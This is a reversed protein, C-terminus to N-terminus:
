DFKTAFPVKELEWEGSKPDRRSNVFCKWNAEDLKPFDGRYYYGPWRTEEGSCCTGCAPRPRTSGTGCRGAGAPPRAPRPRGPERLGGPLVAHARPGAGPDPRQDHLLQGPRRRVRGHDEPDPAAGDEAPHLQRQAGAPQDRAPARRLHQVAQLDGPDHRRRAGQDIRVDNNDIVYQVAAKGALRGETYSGSSFKHASAGCADGAAFLGKVTTMRNYGWHYGEPAADEPGSCWAGTASAHSGM